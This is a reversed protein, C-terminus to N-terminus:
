EVKKAVIEREKWYKDTEPIGKVDFDHLWTGKLQDDEFKLYFDIFMPSVAILHIHKENHGTIIIPMTLKKKSRKYTISGKGNSLVLLGETKKNRLSTTEIKWKGNLRDFHVEKRNMVKKVFIEAISQAERDNFFVQDGTNALYAFVLKQDPYIILHSRATQMSGGHFIVPVDLRSKGTEWGLGYYTSDGNSLVYSSTLTNRTESSLYEDTILQHGMEVLDEATSLYGGGAYMYSRDEFPAIGRKGKKGNLYFKTKLDSADNPKDFATHEMGLEQWMSKMIKFFSEGAAREMVASLLVWGFSSYAYSTGPEFLLPDERFIETASIVDEYHKKNPFPDNSTYHRVGSVSAALHRATIPFKKQPYEPLYKNIPADLDIIGEEALKGLALSTVGKSVSAIRFQTSDVVPSGSDLDAYGFGESWILEGDIMVAVQVGPINTIKQHAKILFRAKEIENKYTSKVTQGFLGACGIPLLLFLLQFKLYKM